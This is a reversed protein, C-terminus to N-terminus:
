VDGVRAMAPRYSVFWVTLNRHALSCPQLVPLVDIGYRYWQPVLDVRIMLVVLSVKGQMVVECSGGTLAFCEHM